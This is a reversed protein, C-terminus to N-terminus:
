AHLAAGCVGADALSVAALMAISVRVGKSCPWAPFGVVRLAAAAAKAVVGRVVVLSFSLYWADTSPRRGAAARRVDRWYASRGHGSRRGTPERWRLCRVGLGFAPRTAAM